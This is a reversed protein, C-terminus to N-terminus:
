SQRKAPNIRGAAVLNQLPKLPLPSCRSFLVVPAGAVYRYVGPGNRWEGMLRVRYTMDPDPGSYTAIVSDKSKKYRIRSPDFQWFGIAQRLKKQFWKQTKEPVPINTSGPFNRPLRDFSTRSYIYPKISREDPVHRLIRKRDEDLQALQLFESTLPTNGYMAVLASTSTSSSSSSSSSRDSHSIPDTPPPGPEISRIARARIKTLSPASAAPWPSHWQRRESTAPM